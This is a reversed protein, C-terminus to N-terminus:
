INLCRQSNDKEHVRLEECGEGMARGGERIFVDQKSRNKFTRKLTQVFHTSVIYVVRDRKEGRESFNLM